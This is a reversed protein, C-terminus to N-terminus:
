LSDFLRLQPTPEPEIGVRYAGTFCAHCFHAPDSGTAKLM